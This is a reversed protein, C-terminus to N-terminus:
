SALQNWELAYILPNYGLNGVLWRCFARCSSLRFVWWMGPHKSVAELINTTSRVSKPLSM